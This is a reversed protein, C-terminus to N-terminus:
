QFQGKLKLCEESTLPEKKLNSTEGTSPNVDFVGKYCAYAEGNDKQLIVKCEIVLVDPKIKWDLLVWEHSRQEPVDITYKNWQEGALHLIQVLIGRAVHAAVFISKSNQSWDISYVPNYEAEIKETEGSVKNTILYYYNNNKDLLEISRSKNPAIFVKGAPIIDYAYM